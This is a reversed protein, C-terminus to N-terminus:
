KEFKCRASQRWEHRWSRWCCGTDFCSREPRGDLRHVCEAPLLPHPYAPALSAVGYRCRHLRQARRGRSDSSPVFRPSLAVLAREAEFSCEPESTMVCWSHRKAVVQLHLLGISGTCFGAKPALRETSNVNGQPGPRPVDSYACRLARRAADSHHRTNRRGALKGYGTYALAARSVRYPGM